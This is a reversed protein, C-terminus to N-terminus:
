NVWRISSTLDKITKDMAASNEPNGGSLSISLVRGGHVLFATKAYPLTQDSFVALNIGGASWHELKFRGANAVRFNYSGDDALNGNPLSDVEINLNTFPSPGKSLSFSELQQGSPRDQPHLTFDSPYAFSIFKGTATTNQVKPASDSQGLQPQSIVGVAPKSLSKVLFIAALVLALIIVPLILRRTKVKKINALVMEQM